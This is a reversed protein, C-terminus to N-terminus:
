DFTFFRGDGVDLRLSFFHSILEEVVAPCRAMRNKSCMSWGSSPEIYYSQINQPTGKDNAFNNELSTNPPHRLVVIFQGIPSFKAICKPGDKVVFGTTESQPGFIYTGVHVFYEFINNLGILNQIHKVNEGVPLMFIVNWRQVDGMWSEIKKMISTYKTQTWYGNTPGNRCDFIWLASRGFIGSDNKLISDGIKVETSFGLSNTGEYNFTMKWNGDDNRPIVKRNCFFGLGGEIILQHHDIM